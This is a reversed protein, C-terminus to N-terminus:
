ADFDDERKITMSDQWTMKKPFLKRRKFLMHVKYGDCSTAIVLCPQWGQAAVNNIKGVGNQKPFNTINMLDLDRAVRYEWGFIPNNIGLWPAGAFTRGARGSLAKIFNKLRM